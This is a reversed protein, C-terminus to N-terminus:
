ADWRRDLAPQIIYEIIWADEFDEPKVVEGDCLLAEFDWISGLLIECDERPRLESQIGIHGNEQNYVLSANVQWRNERDREAWEALLADFSERNFKINNM